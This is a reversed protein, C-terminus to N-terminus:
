SAVEGAYLDRDYLWRNIAAAIRGAPYAVDEEGLGGDDNWPDRGRRRAYAFGAHVAEHTIVEMSLHNLSLGIICFYRPDCEWRSKGNGGESFDAVERGLANVAGVCGEGLPDHKGIAKEWFKRLYLPTSFVLVKAALRGRPTAPIDAEAVLGKVGPHLSFSTPLPRAHEIKVMSGQM